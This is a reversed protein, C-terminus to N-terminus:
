CPVEIKSLKRCIKCAYHFERERESERERERARERQRGGEGTTINLAYKRKKSRLYKM